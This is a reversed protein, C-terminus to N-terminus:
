YARSFALDEPPDRRFFSQVSGDFDGPSRAAFKLDGGLDVTGIAVVEVFMYLM